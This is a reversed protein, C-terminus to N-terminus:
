SNHNCRVLVHIYEDYNYMLQGKRACYYNRTGCANVIETWQTLTNLIIRM